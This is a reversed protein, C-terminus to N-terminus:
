VQLIELGLEYILQRSSALLPNLARATNYNCWTIVFRRPANTPVKEISRLVLAQPCFRFSLQLTLSEIFESNPEWLLELQVERDCYLFAALIQGNWPIPSQFQKGAGPRADDGSGL